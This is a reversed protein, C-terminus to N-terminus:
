RFAAGVIDQAVNESPLTNGQADKWLVANGETVVLTYTTGQSSLLWTQPSFTATYSAEPTLLTFSNHYSAGEFKIYDSGM